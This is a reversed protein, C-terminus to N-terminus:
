AGTIEATIAAIADLREVCNPCAGCPVKSAVQCSYTRVVPVGLDIALRIVDAKSCDRFPLRIQVTGYDSLVDGLRDFFETSCDIEKAHNSNIFAAYVAAIGRDQAFAAAVSLFLLNRYPLYMDEPTVDEQWLDAESILRSRSGAYICSIDLVVVDGAADPPLVERLTDLETKGCHQGYDLFLPLLRRGAQREAYYMTTSDLGGSALLVGHYENM